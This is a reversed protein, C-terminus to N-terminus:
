SWAPVARDYRSRVPVRGADRAWVAAAQGDAAGTSDGRHTRGGTGDRAWTPRRPDAAASLAMNPVAPPSTSYIPLRPRRAADVMTVATALLVAATALLLLRRGLTRSAAMRARQM